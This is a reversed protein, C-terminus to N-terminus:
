KVVQIVTSHWNASMIYIKTPYIVGDRGRLQNPIGRTEARMPLAKIHPSSKFADFGSTLGGLPPNLPPWAPEVGGRGKPSPSVSYSM